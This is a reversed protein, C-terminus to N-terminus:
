RSGLITEYAVDMAEDSDCPIDPDIPQWEKSRDIRQWRKYSCRLTLKTNPLIFSLVDGYSDPLNGCPEGVVTGLHNDKVLMTFDMASSFTQYSSLLYLDGSFCNERRTVPVYQPENIHLYPGFRVKSGWSSFGDIDLYQLFQDAVYSNGGGNERLDVIIHEVGKESVERFFDDLVEMYHDTYNCETLTFIGIKNEEDIEYSVFATETDTDAETQAAERPNPYSFAYHITKGGGDTAYTFDVGETTDVGLLQLYSDMVIMENYFRDAAYYEMEYFFHELFRDYLEQLAIGNIEVPYGYTNIDEWCDVVKYANYRALIGTHGDGMQHLIRSARQWVELTTVEREGAEKLESMEKEYQAEVIPVRENGEELWAPHRSRLIKIVFTLDKEAQQLSVTENLTKAETYNYNTGHYPDFVFKYVLLLIVALLILSGVICGIIKLTKKM